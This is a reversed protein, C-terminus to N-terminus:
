ASMQALDKLFAQQDPSLMFFQSAPRQSKILNKVEDFAVGRVLYMAHLMTGTRGIGAACHIYVPKGEANMQAVFESVEHVQPVEPPFQDDIPVHLAEIGLAELASSELEKMQTLPRETLTVIAQIGQEKLSQADDLDIPIGGAAVKGEEIWNINM